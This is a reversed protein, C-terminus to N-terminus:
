YYNKTEKEAPWPEQKWNPEAVLTCTVITHKNKTQKKLRGRVGVQCILNQLWKFGLIHPCLVFKRGM